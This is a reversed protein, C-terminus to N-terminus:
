FHHSEAGHSCGNCFDAFARAYEGRWLTVFGVCWLVPRQRRTKHMFPLCNFRRAQSQLQELTNVTPMGCKAGSVLGLAAHRALGALAAPALLVAPRAPQAPAGAFDPPLAHLALGATKAVEGYDANRRFRQLLQGREGLAAHLQLGGNLVALHPQAAALTRHQHLPFVPLAPLCLTKDTADLHHRRKTHTAVAM